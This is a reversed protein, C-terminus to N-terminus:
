WSDPCDSFSQGLVKRVERKMGATSYMRACRARVMRIPCISFNIDWHSTNTLGAGPLALKSMVLRVPCGATTVGEPNTLLRGAAMINVPPTYSSADGNRTAKANSCAVLHCVICGFTSQVQFNTM